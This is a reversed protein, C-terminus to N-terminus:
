SIVANTPIKRSFLGQIILHRFVQLFNRFNDPQIISGAVVAHEKFYNGFVDRLQTIYQVILELFDLAYFASFSEDRKVFAEVAVNWYGPSLRFLEEVEWGEAPLSM